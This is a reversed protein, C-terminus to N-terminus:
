FIGKDDRQTAELAIEDVTVALGALADAPADALGEVTAIFRQREATGVIGQSLTEFKKVYDPRQFPRAGLPHADAVAIEDAITEGSDLTIEVRGGYAKEAPDMTVCRREWEPDEVTSIKQWLAITEPRHARESTYSDEHHFRGDELAVAMMYPLSHDLTERSADPSYKQPDNAGSGIVAHSHNNTHVVIKAIKTLDPVRDRLRFCLDIMSQAQYEASHEKPFSDLMARKPEGPEPLPVSYEADPGALLWAILGDEGEYIPAPSTEGRMARDVAEIALKSSHAPAAAKWSSILGKRSQRTACCVHVTHNIAHYIVPVPLGLMAGIGAAAAAGTHTVHDIRHSHLDIAKMLDIHIEYAAAIGRILAAGDCGMQQAVAILPLINDGPHGYELLIFTDHYDLERVAVGNAWAAWEAHVRTEPPMGLVTAGGPRPHALAQARAAVVPARNIAAIAVAADDIIRNGVMEAVAPDLPADDVAVSALKWALEEERPHNEASPWVRVAHHQM